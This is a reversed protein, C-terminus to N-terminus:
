TNNTRKTNLADIIEAYRKAITKQKGRDEEQYRFGDSFYDEFEKVTSTDNKLYFWMFPSYNKKSNSKSLMIASTLRTLGIVAKKFNLVEEEDFVTMDQVWDYIQNIDPDSPHANHRHKYMYAMNTIHEVDKKRKNHGDYNDYFMKAFDSDDRIMESLQLIIPVGSSNLFEGSTTTTQRQRSMFFDRIQECTFTDEFIKMCMTYSAIKDKQEYTLQDYFKGNMNEMEKPYNYGRQMKFAFENNMYEYLACCRQKGDLSELVKKKRDDDMRVHFYM